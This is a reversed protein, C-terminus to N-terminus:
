NRDSTHADLNEESQPTKLGKWFDYVEFVKFNFVPTPLGLM